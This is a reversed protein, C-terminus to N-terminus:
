NSCACAVSSRVALSGTSNGPFAVLVAQQTTNTADTFPRALIPVADSTASFLAAQSEIMMFGAEVGLIRESGLWTGINVRVGSRADSELRAGTRTGSSPRRM